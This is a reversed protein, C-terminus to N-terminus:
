PNQRRIEDTAITVIEMAAGICGIARRAAVHATLNGERIVMELIATADQLHEHATRNHEHVYEYERTGHPLCLQDVAKEPFENPSTM